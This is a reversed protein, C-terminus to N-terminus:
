FILMPRLFCQGNKRAQTFVMAGRLSRDMLFHFKPSVFRFASPIFLFFILLDASNIFRCSNKVTVKLFTDLSVFRAELITYSAFEM